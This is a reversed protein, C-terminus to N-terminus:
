FRFVINVVHIRVYNMSMSMCRKWFISEENIMQVIVVDFSNNDQFFNLDVSTCTDKCACLSAKKKKNTSSWFVYKM